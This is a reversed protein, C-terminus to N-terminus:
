KIELRPVGDAGVTLKFKAVLVRNVTDLYGENPPPVDTTSVPRYKALLAANVRPILAAVTQTIFAESPNASLQRDVTSSIGSSFVGKWENGQKEAVVFHGGLPNTTYFFAIETERVKANLNYSPVVYGAASVEKVALSVGLFIILAGVLLRLSRTM